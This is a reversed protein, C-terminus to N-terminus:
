LWSEIAIIFYQYCTSCNIIFFSRREYFWCHKWQWCKWFHREFFFCHLIYALRGPTRSLGSTYAIHKVTLVVTNCKTCIPQEGGSLLYTHTLRSHGIKLRNIIVADQRSVRNNHICKGVAPYIVHFRNNADSNWIDQWEKLCFRSTCLKFESAQLKMFTVHLCLAATAATDARESGPINM